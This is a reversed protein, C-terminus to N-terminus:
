ISRIKKIINESLKQILNEILKNENNRTDINKKGVDFDGLNAFSSKTREGTKLNYFEVTSNILIQYKVIENKINKELIKKNKKTIIKINYINESTDKSYFLINKKLVRNVRNEGELEFSEIYYQSLDNHNVVTYGCQTVFIFALFLLFKNKM